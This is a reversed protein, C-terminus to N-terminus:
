ASGAPSRERIRRIPEGISAMLGVGIVISLVAHWTQMTGLSILLTTSLSAPQTAKLALTGIVTLLGAIAVSLIRLPPVGHVSVPPVAWAHSIGLGILGAVIGIAHGMLINYPKASPRTPTEVIEFATPGLSTFILPSHFLYGLFAALSLLGAEYAAAVFTDERM